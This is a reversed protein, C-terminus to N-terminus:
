MKGDFRSRVVKFLADKSKSIKIKFFLFIKEFNFYIKLNIIRLFFRCVCLIKLFIWNVYILSYKLDLFIFLMLNNKVNLNECFVFIKKLDRLNEEIWSFKRWIVFIKKLDRFNKEIWSFKRWNIFLILFFDVCM